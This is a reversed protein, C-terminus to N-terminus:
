EGEEESTDSSDSLFDALAKNRSSRRKDREAEYGLRGKKEYDPKGSGTIFKIILGFVLIAVALPAMDSNLLMYVWSPVNMFGMSGLFILVVIAGSALTFWKGIGKHGNARKGTWLGLTLLMMLVAVLLLSVQPLANNIIEVVDFGYYYNGTVHPIVVAFAMVMAIVASYKKNKEKVSSLIETKEFVAFVLTFVLIFPLIVDLVGWQELTLIMGTFGYGGYAM